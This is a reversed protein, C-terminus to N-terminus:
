RPLHHDLATNVLKSRSGAGTSEVLDDIVALHSASLGPVTLQRKVVEARETEVVREFLPGKVTRPADVAAVLAPLEDVTAELADLIQDAYKKGTENRVAQMRSRISIPTLVVLPKLGETTSPRGRRRRPAVSPAAVGETSKPDVDTAAPAERATQPDQAPAQAPAQAAPPAPRRSAPSKKSTRSKKEPRAKAAKAAPRKPALYAEFDQELDADVDGFGAAQAPDAM